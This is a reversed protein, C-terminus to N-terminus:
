NTDLTAVANMAVTLTPVSNIVDLYSIQVSM